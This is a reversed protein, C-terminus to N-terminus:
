RGRPEQGSTKKAAREGLMELSLAYRQRVLEATEKKFVGEPEPTKETPKTDQM